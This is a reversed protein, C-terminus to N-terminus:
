RALINEEAFKAAFDCRLPAPAHVASPQTRRAHQESCAFRWMRAWSRFLAADDSAGLWNPYARGAVLAANLGVVDALTERAVAPGHVAIEEHGPVRLGHLSNAVFTRVKALDRQEQESWSATFGHIGADDFLHFAEHGVLAGLAGLNHAQPGLADFFPPSLLAAPIIITNKARVFSANVSTARMQSFTNLSNGISDLSRNGLNLINECLDHGTFGLNITASSLLSKDLPEPGVNIVVRNLTVISATRSEESLWPVSYILESLATLVCKSLEKAADVIFPNMSLSRYLSDAEDPFVSQVFEAPDIEAIFTPFKARLARSNALMAANWVLRMRMWSKWADTSISTITQMWTGMKEDSPIRVSIGRNLVRPSFYHEWVSSSESDLANFLGNVNTVVYSKKSVAVNLQDLIKEVLIVHAVDIVGWSEPIMTNVANLLSVRETDSGSQQGPPSLPKGILLEMETGNDGGLERLQIGSPIGFKHFSGFAAILTSRDDIAAVEALLRRGHTGPPGLGNSMAHEISRAFSSLHSSRLTYEGENNLAETIACRVDIARDAFSGIRHRGEPIASQESWRGNVDEWLNGFPSMCSITM